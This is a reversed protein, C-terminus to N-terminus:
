MGERRAERTLGMSARRWCYGLVGERHVCFRSLDKLIFLKKTITSALGMLIMM